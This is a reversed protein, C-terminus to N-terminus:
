VWISPTALPRLHPHHCFWPLTLNQLSHPQSSKPYNLFERSPLLLGASYRGMGGYGLTLVFFFEIWLKDDGIRVRPIFSLGMSRDCYFKILVGWFPGRPYLSCLSNSLFASGCSCTHRLIPAANLFQKQLATRAAQLKRGIPSSEASNLTSSSCLVAKLSRAQKDDGCGRRNQVLCHLVIVGM